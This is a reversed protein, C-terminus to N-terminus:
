NWRINNSISKADYNETPYEIIIVPNDVPSYVPNPDPRQYDSLTLKDSDSDFAQDRRNNYSIRPTTSPDFEERNRNKLTYSLHTTSETTWTYGNDSKVVHADQNNVDYSFPKQTRESNYDRSSGPTPSNQSVGPYPYGARSNDVSETNQVQQVRNYNYTKQQSNPLVQPDWNQSKSVPYHVFSVSSSFSSGAVM